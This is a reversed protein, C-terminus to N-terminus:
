PTESTIYHIGKYGYLDQMREPTEIKTQESACDPCIGYDDDRNHWQRGRHGNGCVCCTMGRRMPNQPPKGTNPHLELWDSM